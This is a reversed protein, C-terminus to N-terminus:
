ISKNEGQHRDIVVVSIHQPFTFLHVHPTRTKHKCPHLYSNFIAAYKPQSKYQRLASVVKLCVHFHM